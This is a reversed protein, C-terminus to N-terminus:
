AKLRPRPTHRLPQDTAAYYLRNGTGHKQIIQKNTVILEPPDHTDPLHPLAINHTPTPFQALRTGQQVQVRGATCGRQPGRRTLFLRPDCSESDTASDGYPM